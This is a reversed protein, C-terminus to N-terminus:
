TQDEYWNEDEEEEVNYYEQEKNIMEDDPTEFHSQSQSPNSIEIFEQQRKKRKSKSKKQPPPPDPNVNLWNGFNYYLVNVFYIHGHLIFLYTLWIVYPLFWFAAGPTIFFYAILILVASIWTIFIIFLSHAIKHMGFFVIGWMSLPILHAIYLGLTGYYLWFNVVEVGVLSGTPSIEINKKWAFFAAIGMLHYFILWLIGLMWVSPYFWPKKLKKYWNSRYMTPIWVFNFILALTGTIVWIVLPPFFVPNLYPM